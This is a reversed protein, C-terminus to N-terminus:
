ADERRLRAFIPFSIYLFAHHVHLTRTKSIFGKKKKVNEKGDADNSRLTGITMMMMMMMMVVIM